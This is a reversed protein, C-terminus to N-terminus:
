SAVKNNKIRTALQQMFQDVQAPDSFREELAKRADQAVRPVVTQMVLDQMRKEQQLVLMGEYEQRKAALLKKEHALKQQYAHSWAQLKTRLAQAQTEDQRIQETIVRQDQIAVVRSQELEQVAKDDAAKQTYLMPLVYKQICYWVVYCSVVLNLLRFFISISDSM